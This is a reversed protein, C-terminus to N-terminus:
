TSILPHPVNPVGCAVATPAARIWRGMTLTHYKISFTELFFTHPVQNADPILLETAGLPGTLNYRCYTQKWAWVDADTVNPFQKEFAKSRVFYEIHPREDRARRPHEGITAFTIEDGQEVCRWLTSTITNGFYKAIARVHELTMTNARRYETFVQDPFLLRGAGYNAEAEIRQHCDQSLTTRNDGLLYDAHWPILSHSIEHSEYWRKKLDPVSEDVLIRKRDPIFLASLDFKRVADLLLGPRAMVQQAGVRLKHVVENLLGPDELRYYKLDLRLLERVEPLLIKGTAYGLDQHVRDIRQDIDRVTRADLHVNNM